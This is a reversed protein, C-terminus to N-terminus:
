RQQASVLYTQLKLKRLKNDFYVAVGIALIDGRLFISRAKNGLLCLEALGTKNEGPARFNDNGRALMNKRIELPFYERSYM